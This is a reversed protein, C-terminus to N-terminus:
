EKTKITHKIDDETIVMKTSCHPCTLSKPTWNDTAAISWWNLCDECTFHWIIEKFVKM